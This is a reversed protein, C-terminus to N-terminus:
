KKKDKGEEKKGEGGKDDGKEEDKTKEKLKKVLNDEEEKQKAKQGAKVKKELETKQRNLEDIQKQRIPDVPPNKLKELREKLSKEYEDSQDVRKNKNKILDELTDIESQKAKPPKLRNIQEDIAVMEKQHKEINEMNYQDERKKALSEYTKYNSRSFLGGILGSKYMPSLAAEDFQRFYTDKRAAAAAKAAKKAKDGKATSDEEGLWKYFEENSKVKDKVIKDFGGKGSKHGFDKKSADNLLGYALRGGPVTALRNKVFERDKLFTATRGVTNIGVWSKLLKSANGGWEYAQGGMKLAAVLGINMMVIIVVYNLVVGVASGSFVFAESFTGYENSPMVLKKFEPSAAIRLTVYMLALYVPLFTLQSTLQNQWQNKLDKAQDFVMAVFYLPSFAMLLVLIDLRVALMISVTIFSGAAIIMVASGLATALFIKLLPSTQSLNGEDLASNHYVSSIKLVSMFVNSIGGDLSEAEPAIANYFGLSIVNSADILIKTFFLSFNILVGCLVIKPILSKISSGDVGLITLISAYLLAFIFFISAFDRIILWTAGVASTNAALSSIQMSMNMASNLMMGAIAVIRSVLYLVLNGAEAACDEMRFPITFCAAEAVRPTVVSGVILLTIGAILINSFIKKM